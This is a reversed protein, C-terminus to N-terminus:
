IPTRSGDEVVPDVLLGRGLVSQISWGSSLWYHRLIRLELMEPAVALLPGMM